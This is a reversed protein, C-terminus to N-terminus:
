KAVVVPSLSLLDVPEFKQVQMANPSNSHTHNLGSEKAYYANMDAATAQGIVSHPQYMSNVKCGKIITEETRTM